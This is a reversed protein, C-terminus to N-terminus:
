LFHGKVKHMSVIEARDVRFTVPPNYQRLEVYSANRRVLEKILVLRVRDDEGNRLQVIVDDGIDVQARPSVGVREGPKFRPVM